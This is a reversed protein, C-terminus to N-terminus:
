WREQLKEFMTQVRSTCCGCKFSDRTTKAQESM